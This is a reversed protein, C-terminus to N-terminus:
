TAIAKKTEYNGVTEVKYVNYQEIVADISNYLQNLLSVIELNQVQSAIKTYGVIDFYLITVDDFIEPEVEIGKLLQASVSLPLMESLLNSIRTKEADLLNAVAQLEDNKQKEIARRKDKERVQATLDHIIGTFLLEGNENVESLSLHIPFKTRDKKLGYLRRGIGIVKKVGTTMYDNIYQQHKLSHEIPMLLSLNQGLIESATWEFILEAAHNFRVIIGSSNICIVGDTVTELVSSLIRREILIKMENDHMAEEFLIEKEQMDQLSKLQTEHDNYLQALAESHVDNLEDLKAIYYQQCDSLEKALESELNATQQAHLQSITLQSENQSGPYHRAMSDRFSLQNLLLASKITNEVASDERSTELKLGM